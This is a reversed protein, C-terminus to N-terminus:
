KVPNQTPSLHYAATQVQVPGFYATGQALQHNAVNEVWTEEVPAPSPALTVYAGALLTVAVAGTAFVRALRVFTLSASRRSEIRAWLEPMFNPGPEGYGTAERYSHLLRDLSKEQEFISM